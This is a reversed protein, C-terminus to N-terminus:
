DECKCYLSLMEREKRQLELVRLKDARDEYYKTVYLVLTTWEDQEIKSTMGCTYYEKTLVKSTKTDLLGDGVVKFRRPNNLFLTVLEYACAGIYDTCSKYALKDHGIRGVYYYEGVKQLHSYPVRCSRKLGTVKDCDNVRAPPWYLGDQENFGDFKDGFDLIFLKVPIYGFRKVSDQQLQKFIYGELQTFGEPYDTKFWNFWKM